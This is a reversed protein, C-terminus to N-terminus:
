WHCLLDDIDLSIKFEFTGYKLFQLFNVTYGILFYEGTAM